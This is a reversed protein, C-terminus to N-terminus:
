GRGLGWPGCAFHIETRKEFCVILCVFLGFLCAFCGVLRSFSFRSFKVKKQDLATRDSLLFGKRPNQDVLIWKIMVRSEFADSLIELMRLHIHIRM